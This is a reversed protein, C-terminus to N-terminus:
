KKVTGCKRCFTIKSVHENEFDVFWDHDCDASTVFPVAARERLTNIEELLVQREYLLDIVTRGMALRHISINGEPAISRLIKEAVSDFRALLALQDVVDQWNPGGNM